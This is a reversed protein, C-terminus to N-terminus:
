KDFWPSELSFNSEFLRRSRSVRGNGNAPISLDVGQIMAVHENDALSSSFVGCGRAM